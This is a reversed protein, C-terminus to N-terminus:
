FRLVIGTSLRFNSQDNNFFSTRLFDGQVRWSVLDTWHYDIGGGVATAFATDSGSFGVASAKAHAGGILVEAFPRIKDLSVSVRPGFLYSHVSTDVHTLACPPGGPCALQVGQSGYQGSIDAVIGVWPLVKGELSGTWGNMNAHDNLGIDTRGYTYGFFVNGSQAWAASSLVLITM